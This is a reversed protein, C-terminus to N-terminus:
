RCSSAPSPLTVPTVPYTCPQSAQLLSSLAACPGVKLKGLRVRWQGTAAVKTSASKVFHGGANILRVAVTAGAPGFGFVSGSGGARLVQTTCM